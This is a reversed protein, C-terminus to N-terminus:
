YNNISTGTEKYDYLLKLRIVVSTCPKQNSWLQHSVYM